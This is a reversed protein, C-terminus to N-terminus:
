LKKSSGPGLNEEVDKRTPFYRMKLVWAKESVSVRVFFFDTSTILFVPGDKHESTFPLSTNCVNVSVPM